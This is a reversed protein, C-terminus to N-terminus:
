CVGGSAFLFSVLISAAVCVAILGRRRRGLLMALIGLAITLAASAEVLHGMVNLINAFESCGRDFRGGSSVWWLVTMPAIVTSVILAMSGVFLGLLELVRSQTRMPASAIDGSPDDADTAPRVGM